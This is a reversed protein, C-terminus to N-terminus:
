RKDRKEHDLEQHLEQWFNGLAKRMENKLHQLNQEIQRIKLQNQHIKRSWEQKIREQQGKLDAIRREGERQIQDLSQQAAREQKQSQTEKQQLLIVEEKKQALKGEEQRVTAKLLKFRTEKQQIEKEKEEIQTKLQQIDKKTKELNQQEKETNLRYEREQRVEEQKLSTSFAKAERDLTGKKRELDQEKRQQEEKERKVKLLDQDIRTKLNEQLVNRLQSNLRSEEQQKRQQVLDLDKLQRM